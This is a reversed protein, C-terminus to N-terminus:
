MFRVIKDLIIWLLDNQGKLSCIKNLLMTMASLTVIDFTDLQM